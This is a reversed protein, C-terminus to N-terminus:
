SAGPAIARYAVCVGFTMPRLRLDIFGAELLADVMDERTLFTEISRPLYKYAGSHDRSILTATRPMIRHTYFENLARIVRNKPQSFELIVLRGGPRLVRIFEKLAVRPDAVNRIGFAISVIDFSEDGFPLAMADGQVYEIPAGACPKARDKARAIDLMEGTFDLGVVRRPGARAFARSLDGTGCAVDLVEDRPTVQALRVAAGRWAQDRGFSHVRNNLDYAPAIAAFMQRVRQPKDSREHPDHALEARGWAPASSSSPENTTTTPSPM